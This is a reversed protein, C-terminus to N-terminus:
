EKELVLDLAWCGRCHSGPSRLHELLVSEACGADELADALVPLAEFAGQEHITRALRPVTGEGWALWEPRVVVSSRTPDGLVDRSAEVGRRVARREERLAAARGKAPPGTMGGM